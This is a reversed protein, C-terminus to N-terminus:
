IIYRVIVQPYLYLIIYIDINIDINGTSIKREPTSNQAIM